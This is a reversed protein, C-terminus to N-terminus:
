DYAPGKIHHYLAHERNGDIDLVLAATCAQYVVADFWMLLNIKSQAPTGGTM